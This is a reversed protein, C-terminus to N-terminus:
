PLALRVEHAEIWSGDTCVIRAIAVAHGSQAALVVRESEGLVVRTTPNDQEAM